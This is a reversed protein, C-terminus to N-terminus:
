GSSELTVIHTRVHNEEYNWDGPGAQPLCAYIEPSREFPDVPQPVGLITMERYMRRWEELIDKLTKTEPYCFRDRWSRPDDEAYTPPYEFGGNCFLSITGDTTDLMYCHGERDTGATLQLVWPPWQKDAADFLWGPKSRATPELTLLRYDCSLAATMIWPQVGDIYPLQRLLAVAEDTKYIDHKALSEPTIVDWGGPPASHVSSPDVHPLFNYFSLIDSVIEDRDYHAPKEPRPDSPQPEQSAM